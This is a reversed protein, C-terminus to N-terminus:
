WRKLSSFLPQCFLFFVSLGLPATLYFAPGNMYASAEQRWGHTTAHTPPRAPPLPSAGTASATRATHPHLHTSPTTASRAAGVAATLGLMAAGAVMTPPIYLALRAPTVAPAAMYAAVTAGVYLPDLMLAPLLSPNSVPGKSSGGAQNCLMCTAAVTATVGAMAVVAAAKHSVVLRAASAAARQVAPPAPESAAAAAAAAASGGGGGVSMTRQLTHGVVGLTFLASAALLAGIKPLSEIEPLEIAAPGVIIPVLFIPLGAKLWAGGSGLVAVLKRGVAPHVSFLSLLIVNAVPAPCTSGVADLAHATIRDASVFLFVGGVAVKLDGDVNIRRPVSSICRRAARHAQVRGRVGCHVLRHLHVM